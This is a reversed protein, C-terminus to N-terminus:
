ERPEQGRVNQNERYYEEVARDRAQHQRIVRLLNASNRRQVTYGDPSLAYLTDSGARSFAQDISGPTSPAADRTIVYWRPSRLALNDVPPLQLVPPASVVPVRTTTTCAGLTVALGMTILVKAFLQHEGISLM